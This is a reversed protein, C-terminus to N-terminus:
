LGLLGHLIERRTDANHKAPLLITTEDGVKTYGIRKAHILDGIFYKCGKFPKPVYV